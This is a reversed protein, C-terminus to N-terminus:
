GISSVHEKTCNKSDYKNIKRKNKCQITFFEKRVDNNYFLSTPFPFIEIDTLVINIPCAEGVTCPILDFM